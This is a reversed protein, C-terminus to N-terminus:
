KKEPKLVVRVYHKPLLYTNAALKLDEITVAKVRDKFNLITAPDTGDYYVSEIKGLWFENKELDTERTRILTEKAKNLDIETPGKTRIKKIEGFVAKTLKNAAKPSCGFMVMFQFKSKPYHEPDIMIHPSYVGSMKERIVEILKISIIEKLMDLELLNKPNYDFPESMVIGVMGQPDTGKYLTNNVVGKPFKPSVDVWAEPRNLSPLSGFYKTVLPTITDISFNGTLFFKFEKASAFMAVYIKYLMNLNVQKLQEPTPFIVIRKYGPYASKFLTDYFSMMPSSKMFKIQNETQSMFAKFATTDKRPGKFYLYVMQLLTEIDKPTSNGRFGEKTDSIYPHIEINKGKLKKELEVNDFDGAGSMEIVQAAYNVSMFNDDPIV